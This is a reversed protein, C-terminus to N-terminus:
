LPEPVQFRGLGALLLERFLAKVPPGDPHMQFWSAVDRAANMLAGPDAPHEMRFLIAVLSPTQTLSEAPFQGEDLMYYRMEPQFKWLPSHEPLRILERLSTAAHWRPLGNYIVVPLVPPLGEEPKLRREDVLQQYLLGTYVDLRLVMWPDIDSQFELILLVFLSGGAQLPIEWVMDGRRRSGSQGATFKTNHRRLGTLDLEAVVSPELFHRLLDAVMEPHAFLRHYLSDVPRPTAPM